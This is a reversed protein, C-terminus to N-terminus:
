ENDNDEKPRMDYYEMLNDVIEPHEKEYIPEFSIINGFYNDHRVSMFDRFMDLLTYADKLDILASEYAKKLQTVDERHAVKEDELEREVAELRDVVYQEATKFDAM